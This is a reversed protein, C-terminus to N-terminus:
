RHAQRACRGVQTFHCPCPCCGGCTISAAGGGTAPREPLNGCRLGHWEKPGGARVVRCPDTTGYKQLYACCSAGAVCDQRSGRWECGPALPIPVENALAEASERGHRRTEAHSLLDEDCSGKGARRCGLKGALGCDHCDIVVVVVKVDQPGVACLGDDKAVTVQMVDVQHMWLCLPNDHVNGWMPGSSLGGGQDKVSSGLDRSAGGQSLVALRHSEGCEPVGEFVRGALQVRGFSVCLAGPGGHRRARFRWTRGRGHGRHLLRTSAARGAAPAHRSAELVRARRAVHVRDNYAECRGAAPRASTRRRLAVVRPRRRVSVMDDKTLSM